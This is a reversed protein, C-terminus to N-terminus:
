IENMTLRWRRAIGEGPTKKKVVPVIRGPKKVRDAFAELM